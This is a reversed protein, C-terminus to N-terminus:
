AHELVPGGHNRSLEAVLEVVLPIGFPLSAVGVASRVHTGRVGFVDLLLDSAGDLVTAHEAFDPSANVYGTVSVIREISDLSGLASVASALLNLGAIRAAQRAEPVTFDTGVKGVHSFGSASDASLPGHASLRLYHGDVLAPIYLGRPSVPPPLVIEREAMRQSPTHNDRDSNM